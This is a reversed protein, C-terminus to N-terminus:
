NEKQQMINLIDDIKKVTPKNDNNTNNSQNNNSQTNDTIKLFLSMNYEKLKEINSNLEEITKKHAEEQTTYATIKSNLETITKDKEIIKTQYEQDTLKTNEESM